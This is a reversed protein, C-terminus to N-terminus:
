GLEKKLAKLLEEAEAKTLSIGKTPQGSRWKRIDYVPEADGWKIVNLEKSSGLESESLKKIKKVLEYKLERAM